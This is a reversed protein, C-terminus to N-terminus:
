GALRQCRGLLQDAMCWAAQPAERPLAHEQRTDQRLSTNEGILLFVHGFRPVGELRRPAGARRGAALGIGSAALLLCAVVAAIISLPRRM